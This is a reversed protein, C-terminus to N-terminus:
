NRRTRRKPPQVDVCTSDATDVDYLQEINYVKSNDKVRWSLLAHFRLVQSNLVALRKELADKCYLKSEVFQDESLRLIKLLSSFSLFAELQTELSEIEVQYDLVMDFQQEEEPYCGLTCSTNTMQGCGSCTFRIPWDFLPRDTVRILIPETVVTTCGVHDKVWCLDRLAGGPRVCVPLAGRYSSFGTKKNTRVRDNPLYQVNSLAVGDRIGVGVVDKFNQQETSYVTIHLIDKSEDCLGIWNLISTPTKTKENYWYVLRRSLIVVSLKNYTKQTLEVKATPSLKVGM